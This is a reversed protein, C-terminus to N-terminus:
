GFQAGAFSFNLSYCYAICSEISGGGIKNIGGIGISDLGDLDRSIINLDAYCGMYAQCDKKKILKWKNYFFLNTCNKFVGITCM